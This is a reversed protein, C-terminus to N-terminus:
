ALKLYSGVVKQWSRFIRNLLWRLYLLPDQKSALAKSPRVPGGGSAQVLYFSFDFEDKGLRM